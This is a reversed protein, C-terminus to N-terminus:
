IMELSEIEKNLGEVFEKISDLKLNSVDKKIGSVKNVIIREIFNMKEFIFEGGFLGNHLSHERLEHPYAKEFQEKAIEAERICCLFLSIRKHMLVNLNDKLFRQIKKQIAGMHISGGLIILDFENLDPIGSKGNLDFVIVDGELTESIIRAAKETTGHTSCYLVLCKM